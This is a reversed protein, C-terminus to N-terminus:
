IGNIFKPHQGDPLEKVEDIENAPKASIVRRLDTMRPYRDRRARAAPGPVLNGLDPWGLLQVPIQHDL